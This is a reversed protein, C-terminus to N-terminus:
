PSPHTRNAVLASGSWCSTDASTASWTPSPAPSTASGPSTRAPSGSQSSASTRAKPSLRADAPALLMPAAGPAGDAEAATEEEARKRLCDRHQHCTEEVAASLNQLLHWRDAVELAGPAAEGVAKTCATARDRCIIEAGPHETLWAAFTESTRDPLVDVVQGAEVDVLVTGYTCGKRFVFEDVGLVRPACDPVAPATLLGLLRTRGAALRLRRCLRAAPRGGLEIAISRLWGVQRVFGVRHVATVARQM